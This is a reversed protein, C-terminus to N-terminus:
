SFTVGFLHCLHNLVSGIFVNYLAVAALILAAARAGREKFLVIVANMCPVMMMMLINVVLQLNTYSGRIHQLETAGNEKRILLKIFVQVSNEPLGLLGTTLPRLAKEFITLGGFWHFFFVFLSALVFVPLAEKTFFYTRFASKKLLGAARPWRMPPIEILLPTRLGPLIKHLVCGIIYVQTFMIGFVTLAATLPLKGLLVFTVAPLPACPIGLFLLFSAIIKERRSDLSRTALVAMTICSFGMVLPMVGKGNLGIRKFVKDLMLSFRPLYGSDELFGVFLYFCFLVPAVL